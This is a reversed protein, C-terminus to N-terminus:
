SPPKRHVPNRVQSVFGSHMCCSGPNGEADGTMPVPPCSFVSSFMFIWVTKWTTAKSGLTVLIRSVDTVSHCSLNHTQMLTFIEYGRCNKSAAKLSSGKKKKVLTCRSVFYPSRNHRNILSKIEKALLSDLCINFSQTFDYFHQIHVCIFAFM